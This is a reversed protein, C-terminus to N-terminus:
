AAAPRHLAHRHADTQLGTEHDADDDGREQKGVPEAAGRDQRQPARLEGQRERQHHEDEGRGRGDGARELGGEIRELRGLPLEPLLGGLEGPEVGHHSGDM